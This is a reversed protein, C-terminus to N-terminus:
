VSLVGGVQSVEARLAPPATGGMRVPHMLSGVYGSCVRGNSLRLRGKRGWREWLGGFGAGLMGSVSGIAEGVYEGVVLGLCNWVGVVVPWIWEAEAM